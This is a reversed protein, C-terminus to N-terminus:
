CLKIIPRALSISGKDTFISFDIFTGRNFKSSQKTELRLVSYFGTDPQSSQTSLYVTGHKAVDQLSFKQPIDLMNTLFDLVFSCLTCGNGAAIMISQIDPHFYIQEHKKRCEEQTEWNGTSLKSNPLCVFEGCTDAWARCQTCFQSTEEAPKIGSDFVFILILGNGNPLLKPNLLAHQFNIVEIVECAEATEGLLRYFIISDSPKLQIPGIKLESIYAHFEDRGIDSSSFVRKTKSTILSKIPTVLPLNDRIHKAWLLSSFPSFNEESIGTVRRTEIQCRYLKPKRQQSSESSMQPQSPDGNLEKNKEM